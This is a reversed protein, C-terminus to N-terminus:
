IIEIAPRYIFFYFPCLFYFPMIIKFDTKTPFHFLDQQLAPNRKKQGFLFAFLAFHSTRFVFYYPLSKKKAKIKSKM